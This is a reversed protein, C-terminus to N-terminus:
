SIAAALDTLDLCHTVFADSLVHNSPLVKDNRFHSFDICHWLIRISLATSLGHLSVSWSLSQDCISATVLRDSMSIISIVIANRRVEFVKLVLTLSGM